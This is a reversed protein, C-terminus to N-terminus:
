VTAPQQEDFASQLSLLAQVVSVHVSFAQLWVATTPQQVVLASQLSLSGHVVSVQLPFM